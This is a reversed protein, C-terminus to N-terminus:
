NMLLAWYVNIISIDIVGGAQYKRAESILVCINIQGHIM